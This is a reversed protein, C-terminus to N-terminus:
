LHDEKTSIDYSGNRDQTPLIAAAAAELTDKKDINEKVISHLPMSRNVIHSGRALLPSRHFCSQITSSSSM